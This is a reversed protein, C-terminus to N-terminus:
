SLKVAGITALAAGLLAVAIPLVVPAHRILRARASAAVVAGRAGSVALVALLALLPAVFVLNYTVVLACRALTSSAGETIAVLAGFYPVATPLETAMIAAGLVFASRGSRVRQESLRRGIQARRVWLIAAAALLGVGAILEILHVVRPRPHSVFSLLAQGPGFVLLLGGLTSVGFVGTTFAAVDRRPHTGLAYLLAPVVTSPNISDVAAISVVLVVLLLVPALKDSTANAGTGTRTRM